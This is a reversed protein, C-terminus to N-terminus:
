KVKGFLREDWFYEEQRVLQVKSAFDPHRTNIIYNYERPIVASPVRLVLSRSERYWSGGIDQLKPYAKVHRWDSPLHKKLVHFFLEEEDAISIVMVKYKSLPKVAGFHVVLELTSLARSSGAYIVFQNDDNWRNAAGSSTLKDAYEERSIRYVEM